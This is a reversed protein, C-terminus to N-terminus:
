KAGGACRFGLGRREEQSGAGARRRRGEEGGRSGAVASKRRRRLQAGGSEVGGGRGRCLAEAAACGPWSGRARASPGEEVAGGGGHARCGRRRRAPSTLRM